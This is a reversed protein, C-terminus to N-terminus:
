KRMFIKPRKAEPGGGRYSATGSRMKRMRLFSIIGFFLFLVGMILQPVPAEDGEDTILRTLANAIYILGFIVFFGPVAYGLMFGVGKPVKQEKAEAPGRAEVPGKAQAPVSWKEEASEEIKGPGHKEMRALLRIIQDRERPDRVTKLRKILIQREKDEQKM